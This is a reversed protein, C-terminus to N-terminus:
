RIQCTSELERVREEVAAAVAGEASVLQAARDLWIRSMECDSQQRSISALTLALDPTRISKWGTEALSRARPASEVQDALALSRALNAATASSPSERHRQELVSRMARGTTNELTAELSALAQQVNPPQAQKRASEILRGARELAGLHLYVRALAVTIESDSEDLTHAWELVTQAEDLHNLNRKLEGLNFHANASLPALACARQFLRHAEDLQGSRALVTALNVHAAASEPAASLASSFARIAGATDGAALAKRGELTLAREGSRLALLQDLWPDAPRVGLTGSRELHEAALEREGLALLARALPYHLRDAAPQRALAETLAQRAREHQSLQLATEGEYAFLAADELGALKEIEIAQLAEEYRGLEHLARARALRAPAYTRARALARELWLLEEDFRGRESMLRSTFYATQPNPSLEWALRYLPEASDHLGYVHYLAALRLAAAAREATETSAELAARAEMIQNRVGSEFEDLAPKPIQHSPTKEPQALLIGSGLFGLLGAGLVIPRLARLPGRM